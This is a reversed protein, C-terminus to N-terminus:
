VDNNKNAVGVNGPLIECASVIRRIILTWVAIRMIAYARRRTAGLRLMVNAFTARLIFPPSALLIITRRRLTLSARFPFQKSYRYACGLTLSILKVNRRSAKPVQVGVNLFHALDSMSSIRNFRIVHERANGEVASLHPLDEQEFGLAHNGVCAKAEDCVEQVAPLYNVQETEVILWAGGQTRRLAM